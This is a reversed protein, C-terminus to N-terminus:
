FSIWLFWDLISNSFYLIKEV